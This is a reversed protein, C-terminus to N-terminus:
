IGIGGSFLRWVGVPLENLQPEKSLFKHDEDGIVEIIANKPNLKGRWYVRVVLGERLAGWLHHIESIPTTLPM